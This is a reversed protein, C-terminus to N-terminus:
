REIEQGYLERQWLREVVREVGRTLHRRYTSFPLGFAEAALEQTQAPRVYTRTLARHLKEDRSDARLADIAEAVVDRL